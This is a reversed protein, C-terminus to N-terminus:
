GEYISRMSRITWEIYTYFIFFYWWFRVLYFRRWWRLQREWHFTVNQGRHRDGANTRCGDNLDKGSCSWTFLGISNFTNSSPMEQILGVHITDFKPSIMCLILVHPLFSIHIDQNGVINTQRAQVWNSTSLGVITDAESQWYLSLCIQNWRM